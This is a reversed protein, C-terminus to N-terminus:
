FIHIGAGLTVQVSSITQKYQYEVTELLSQNILIQVGRNFRPTAHLYTADLLLFLRGASQWKLGAGAQYSFAWPFPTALVKRTIAQPGDGTDFLYTFGPLSTKLLGAQARAQMSFRSKGLPLSVSPGLLFRAIKWPDNHISLYFLNQDTGVSNVQYAASFLASIYRNFSYGLSLEAVAGTM